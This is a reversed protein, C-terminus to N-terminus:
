GRRLHAGLIHHQCGRRSCLSQSGHRHPIHCPSHAPVPTTTRLQESTIYSIPNVLDDPGQDPGATLMRPLKWKSANNLVRYVTIVSRHAGFIRTLGDLVAKISKSRLAERGRSAEGCAVSRSFKMGVLRRPFTPHKELFDFKTTINGPISIIIAESGALAM